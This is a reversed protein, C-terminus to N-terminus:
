APSPGEAASLAAALQREQEELGGVMRLISLVTWIRTQAFHGPSGHVDDHVRIDIRSVARRLRETDSAPIIEDRGSTLHAVPIQLAHLEDDTLAWDRIREYVEGPETRTLHALTDTTVRPVTLQWQRDTFFDHIPAGAGVVGRIRPEGLATRLALHGSFSLALAYTRDTQARGDAADLLATIMSPGDLGYALENEGVGPLEAVIGAMGYQALQLLVPAWQEKTSIIGGIFLLLPKPDAASLGGAWARVRGGPTKVELREIGPTAEAWDAFLVSARAAAEQRADGDAFPFRAMTYYRVAELPNGADELSRARASWEGAWSGAGGDRDDRIRDLIPGYDDASMGQSHAHAIVYQKLEDIDNM